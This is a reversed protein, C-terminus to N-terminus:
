APPLTLSNAAQFDVINQTGNIVLDYHMAVILDLDCEDLRELYWGILRHSTEVIHEVALEIPVHSPLRPVCRVRIYNDATARCIARAPHDKPLALVLSYIRPQDRVFSYLAVVEGYLTTQGQLREALDQFGETLTHGLLEDLSQFHRFFTTYGVEAQKAVARITLNECGQALALTLFADALAQRTRAARPDNHDM